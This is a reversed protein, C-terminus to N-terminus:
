VGATQRDGPLLDKVLKIFEPAPLPKLRISVDLGEYQTEVGPMGTLVVVPLSPFGLRLERVLESGCREPLNHDTIVLGIEGNTSQLRELASSADKAVCVDFGAGTLVMERIRLQTPDDDVLLIRCM